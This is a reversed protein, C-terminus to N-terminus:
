PIMRFGHCQVSCSSLVSIRMMLGYFCPLPYTHFNTRNRNQPGTSDAGIQQPPQGVLRPHRDANHGLTCAGVPQAAGPTRDVALGVARLDQVRRLGVACVQEDNRQFVTGQAPRQIVDARNHAFIGGDHAQHVAKVTLLDDPCRNAVSMYQGRKNFHCGVAGLLADKKVRVCRDPDNVALWLRGKVAGAHLGHGIQKVARPQVVLGCHMDALLDPALEPQIDAVVQRLCNQTCTDAAVTVADMHLGDTVAQAAFQLGDGGCFANVQTQHVAGDAVAAKYLRGRPVRSQLIQVCVAMSFNLHEGTREDAHSLFKADGRRIVLVGVM